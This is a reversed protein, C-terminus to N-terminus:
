DHTAAGGRNAADGAPGLVRRRKLGLVGLFFSASIFQLGLIIVTVSAIVIRGVDLSSLPGFGAEAWISVAWFLLGIGIMMILAGALIGLELRMLRGVRDLRSGAPMLGESVAFTKAFIGLSIFQVGLMMALAAVLQTNIDFSVAGIYLRGPLLLVHVILGFLLLTAGPVVFLWRPSFLLMFRLHRWGDRWSRLHPARMRGDPHLTIPVERCRMKMLSAKIIMESAFEMGTTRLDLADFAQRRLGRMGANIDSIGTAFFVRSVWTLIPTGIWRHKWPMAGPLIQGGGSPLRCGMVLDAGDRLAALFKPIDGFDYSDDADAFIIFKGNSAEIAGMIAAGYGRDAVHVVHAGLEQALEVSGDDSGNDGIVIEGRIGHKSLAAAAKGVCTSITDAENLCPMVVSLEIELSDEVPTDSQTM